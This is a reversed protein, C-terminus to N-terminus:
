SNSGVVQSMSDGPGGFGTIDKELLQIDYIVFHFVKIFKIYYSKQIIECQYLIRLYRFLFFTSILNATCTYSANISYGEDPVSFFFDFPQFVLSNLTKPAFLGFSMSLIALIFKRRFQLIYYRDFGHVQITMTIYCFCEPKQSVM